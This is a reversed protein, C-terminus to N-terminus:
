APAISREETTVTHTAAANPPAVASTHIRCEDEFAVGTVVAGGALACGADPGGAGVGIMSQGSRAGSVVATAKAATSFVTEPIISFTERGVMVTTGGVPFFM